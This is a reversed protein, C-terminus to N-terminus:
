CLLSTSKDIFVALPTDGLISDLLFTLLKTIQKSTDLKRFYNLIPPSNEINIKMTEVLKANVGEELGYVEKFYGFRLLELREMVKARATVSIGPLNKKLTDYITKKM